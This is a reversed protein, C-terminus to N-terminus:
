KKVGFKRFLAIAISISALTVLVPIAVPLLETIAGQVGTVVPAFLDGWDM